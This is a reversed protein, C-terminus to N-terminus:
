FEFGLTGWVGWLALATNTHPEEVYAGLAGWIWHARYGIEFHAAQTLADQSTGSYLNIDNKNITVFTEDPDAVTTITSKSATGTSSNPDQIGFQTYLPHTTNCSKSLFQVKEGRHAWLAYGIEAQWGCMGMRLGTAFNVINFPHIRLWQTLVNIAPVILNPNCKNRLPLYRSWPKKFLDLVRHQNHSFYYHNVINVMLKCTFDAGEPHLPLGAAFENTWVVHGNNGLTPRFLEDPNTRGSFPIDLTTQYWLLFDDSIEDNKTWATGFGIDLETPLTKSRTFNDIRGWRYNSNNLAQLITQPFATGVGSLLAESPNINQEVSVIPMACTFWVRNLWSFNVIHGIDQNYNILVGAQRQTPALSVLGAFNSPLGLYEARVDRDCKQPTNDGAVLITDQCDILFYGATDHAKRSKQYMPMIRLAAHNDKGKNAIIEDWMFVSAILHNLPRTFMFSKSSQCQWSDGAFLSLSLTGGVVLPILYYQMKHQKM